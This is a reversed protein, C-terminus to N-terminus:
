EHAKRHCRESAYVPLKVNKVNGDKNKIVFKRYQKEPYEDTAIEYSFRSGNRHLHHYFVNPEREMELYWGEPLNITYSNSAFYLNFADKKISVACYIPIKDEGLTVSVTEAFNFTNSVNGCGIVFAVFILFLYRM